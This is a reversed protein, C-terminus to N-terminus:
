SGVQELTTAFSNCHSEFQLRFTLLWASKIALGSRICLLVPTYIVQEESNNSVQNCGCQSDSVYFM